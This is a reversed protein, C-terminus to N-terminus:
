LVTICTAADRMLMFALCDQWQIRENQLAVKTGSFTRTRHYHLEAPPPPPPTMQCGDGLPQRPVTKGPTPCSLPPPSPVKPQLMRMLEAELVDAGIVGGGGGTALCAERCTREEEVTWHEAARSHRLEHGMAVCVPDAAYPKCGPLLRIGRSRGIALSAMRPPPKTSTSQASRM